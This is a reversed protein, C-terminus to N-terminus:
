GESGAGFAVGRGGGVTNWLWGNGGGVGEVQFGSTLKYRAVM